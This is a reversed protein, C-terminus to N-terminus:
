EVVLKKNKYLPVKSKHAEFLRTVESVYKAHWKNVDEDTPEKIHPIGM